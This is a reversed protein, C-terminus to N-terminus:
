VASRKPYATEYATRLRETVTAAPDPDPLLEGPIGFNELLEIELPHLHSYHFAQTMGGHSRGVAKAAGRVTLNHLVMWARIARLRPYQALIRLTDARLGKNSLYTLSSM